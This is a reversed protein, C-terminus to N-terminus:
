GEVIECDGADIYHDGNVDRPLVVYELGYRSNKKEVEFVEGIHDAYLFSDVSSKIIKVKM